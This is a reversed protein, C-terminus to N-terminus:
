WTRAMCIPLREAIVALDPAVRRQGKAPIGAIAQASMYELVDVLGDDHHRDLTGARPEKTVSTPCRPIVLDIDATLKSNTM